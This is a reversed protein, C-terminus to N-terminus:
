DKERAVITIDLEGKGDKNGGYSHGEIYYDDFNFNACGFDISHHGGGLVWAEVIVNNIGETFTNGEEDVLEWEREGLQVARVKGVATCGEKEETLAYEPVNFVFTRIEHGEDDFYVDYGVEVPKHNMTVANPPKISAVATVATAACLVAAAAAILMPKFYRPRKRQPAIADSVIDDDIDNMTEFLPNINNM